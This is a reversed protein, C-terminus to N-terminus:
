PEQHRRQLNAKAAARVIRNADKALTHLIDLPTNPNQAIAYRELWVESCYYKGLAPYPALPHLLVLFRSLSPNHQPCLKLTVELLLSVPTKPHGAVFERIAHNEDQALQNLLQDLLMLPTNPNSAITRRIWKDEAQALLELFQVPTNPNKAVKDQALLELLQVPTNPNMALYLRIGSDKHQALQELIEVPINFNCAIPKSVDNNKALHKPRKLSTNSNDASLLRIGKHRVLQNIIRAPILGRNALHRIYERENYELTTIQIAECAAEDWGQQMEGAWNVHLRAAEQVQSDWCEMLQELVTRPTQANMALAMGLRANPKPTSAKENFVDELLVETADHRRKIAQELLSIPVKEQKLLSILTSIPMENVLNPNELLLLSFIPNDLLQQPFKSGLKLLVETPTNPNAAVHQHTTVDSSNGLERLLEPPTCSNQAVLEALPTSIQALEYLRDSSTKENVAELQLSHFEPLIPNSM